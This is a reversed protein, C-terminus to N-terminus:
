GYVETFHGGDVKAKFCADWTKKMGLMMVYRKLNGISM